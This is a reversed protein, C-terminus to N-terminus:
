LYQRKCELLTRGISDLLFPVERLISSYLSSVNPDYEYVIANRIKYIKFLRDADTILGKKEAYNLMGPRNHNELDLREVSRFVKNM